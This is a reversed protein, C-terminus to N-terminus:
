KFLSKLWSWFRQLFNPQVIVPECSASYASNAYQSIYGFPIRAHGSAISNQAAWGSGWSNRVIFYGGGPVDPDVEYGVMCMAHGGELNDVPLPLRIDGTSHAPETFWYTYVPVTFAITCGESMVQRLAEINTPPIKKASTIRYDAAKEKADAPPPDQSENGAVPQPNYPWITEQPIGDSELRDMAIRVYTGEGPILDHKKCDWYLYQESLNADESDPRVLHERVATCAFAVCTGRQGQNRVPGLLNHYDVSTPLPAFAAPWEAEGGPEREDLAGLGYSKVEGVAFAVGPPLAAQAQEVLRIVQDEPLKLLSVLGSLGGEQNAAGILEEATTIWLDALQLTISGPFGSIEALATGNKKAM